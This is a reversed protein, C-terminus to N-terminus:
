EGGALRRGTEGYLEITAQTGEGQFRARVATAPHIFARAPGSIPKMAYRDGNPFVVVLDGQQYLVSITPGDEFAYRGTLSELVHQPQAVEQVWTQQFVPWGYSGSVARLFELGLEAGNDSNALYVAGDGSELNMTMGARYGVTGGYHTLFVRDGEGILIFGYAHGEIPHELLGHITERTFVSSEGLWGKRMEILLAAMDSASAWLGAAAQEPHNHWGGPVVSGDGRHGRATHGHVHAPLPQTFDAQQMGAPVGLWTHMLQEFPQGLRDQLAIEAVTYGGGSYRLATGPAELVEVKRANAPPTGAVTQVDTPLPQGQAYGEYGGPTVGATHTFLNRLTVPNASTHQAAPLQWSSLYTGIDADLDVLGAQQM